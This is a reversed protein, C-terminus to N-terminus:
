CHGVCMSYCSGEESQSFVSCPIAVHFALCFTVLYLAPQYSPLLYTTAPSPPASLPLLSPLPYFLWTIAPSPFTSPHPLLLAHAPMSYPLPLLCALAAYVITLSDKGAMIKMDEMVMDQRLSGHGFHGAAAM